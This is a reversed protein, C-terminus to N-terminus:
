INLRPGQKPGRRRINKQKYEDMWKYAPKVYREIYNAIDTLGASPNIRKDTIDNLEAAITYYAQSNLKIMDEIYMRRKYSEALRGRLWKMDKYGLIVYERFYIDNYYPIRFKAERDDAIRSDEDRIYNTIERGESIIMNNTYDRIEALKTHLKKIMAREDPNVDYNRRFDIPEIDLRIILPNNEEEDILIGQNNFIQQGGRNLYEQYEPNHFGNKIVLGTRYNFPTRCETCFMDNCGEVKSIWISCKPCRTSEKKIEALTDLDSKKCRHTELNAVVTECLKCNLKKCNQCQPNDELYTGLNCGACKYREVVTREHLLRREHSIDTKIEIFQAYMDDDRWNHLIDLDKAQQLLPKLPMEISILAIQEKYIDDIRPEDINKVIFTKPFKSQIFSYTYPVHCNICEAKKYQYISIEICELCTTYQCEPCVLAKEIPLICIPCENNM